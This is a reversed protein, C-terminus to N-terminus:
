YLKGGFDIVYIIHDSGENKKKEQPITGPVSNEGVPSTARQNQQKATMRPTRM